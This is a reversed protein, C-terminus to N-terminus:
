KKKEEAARAKEKRKNEIHIEMYESYCDRYDSFEVDCDGQTPPLKGQLVSDWIVKKRGEVCVDFVEKLKRCEPFDM